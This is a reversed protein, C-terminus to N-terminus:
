QPVTGKMTHVWIRLEHTRRDDVHAGRWLTRYRRWSMAWNAGGYTPMTMSTSPPLPDPVVPPQLSVFRAADSWDDLAGIGIAAIVAAGSRHARIAASLTCSSASCMPM